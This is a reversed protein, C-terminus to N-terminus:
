GGGGGQAGARAPAGAMGPTAISASAVLSSLLSDEDEPPPAHSPAFSM